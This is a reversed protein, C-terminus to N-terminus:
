RHNHWPFLLKSAVATTCEHTRRDHLTKVRMRTGSACYMGPTAPLIMPSM